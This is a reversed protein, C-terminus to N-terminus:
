YDNNKNSGPGHDTQGGRPNKRPTLDKIKVKGATKKAPASKTASKKKAAM